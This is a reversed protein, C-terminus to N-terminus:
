DNFAWGTVTPVPESDALIADVRDVDVEWQYGIESVVVVKSADNDSPQLTFTKDAEKPKFLKGHWPNPGPKGLLWGDHEFSGARIRVKVRNGPHTKALTM